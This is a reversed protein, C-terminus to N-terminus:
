NSKEIGILFIRKFKRKKFLYFDEMIKLQFFNHISYKKYKRNLIFAQQYIEWRVVFNFMELGMFHFFFRSIHVYM